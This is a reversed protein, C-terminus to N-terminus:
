CQRRAHRRRCRVTSCVAEAHATHRPPLAPGRLAVTADVTRRSLRTGVRVWLDKRATGTGPGCPALRRPRTTARLRPRGNDRRRSQLADNILWGANLELHRLRMASTRAWKCYGTSADQPRGACWRVPRGRHRQGPRPSRTEAPCQPVSPATATEGRSYALAGGFRWSDGARAEAGLEAGRTRAGINSVQSMGDMVGGDFYRFQIFDEVHGAYASVWAHVGSSRYHMGIDLQTTKETDLGAFANVAGAPGMDASFLEWYDPMRETHGVGAYGSWPSGKAGHEYRVFGAALSEGRSQGATPNAM